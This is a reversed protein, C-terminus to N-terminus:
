TNAAQNRKIADKQWGGRFFTLTFVIGKLFSTISYAWWIGTLGLATRMLLFAIPIRMATLTISIVSCLKTKGLGSLAGSTVIEAMLFPESIGIIILYTVSIAVATEEHFFVSSIQRPLIVFAILVLTGWLFSTILSFIYGKKIRDNKGAGFNQGCFSNIAASFGDATNWSISEIQGGVRSVAFAEPGFTSIFRSLMMSIMCYVMSQIAAPAGISIIHRYISQDSLTFLKQGRFVTAKTRPSNMRVCMILTVLAQSLVTAIAAGIAEMRPFFGIGLIMLPDLIMNLILGIFSAYMPTKSDGDATYLGTLTFNMFNFIILGCTIRMYDNAVTKSIEDELHFFSVLQDTFLLSVAGFFFGFLLILHIAARTCSKAEDMRGAGIAQATLVQGGMRPLTAFGSALWMYMGGVGVGAVTKAGLTGVWAMDCINYLTGLFSSAMIPLALTLITKVIPGKTIEM